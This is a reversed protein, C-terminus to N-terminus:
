SRAIGRVVVTGTFVIITGGILMGIFLSYDFYYGDRVPDYTTCFLKIKAVLNALLPQEPPTRGLVLEILPDVLLPTDFVQGYIQRYVRGEADIVTAQILHDFGNSSPFFQFGLDSSLAEINAASGSLLNWSKDSIGQKNAFYQMAAPTDVGTDFGVVAVEFSDDGLAKRAKEVVKSLHRTTMPCIQYCSTFIMSLVLPKGRFQDLSIASGDASMFEYDGVAQGIASQSLALAQDYDFVQGATEVADSAISASSANVVPLLTMHLTLGCILLILRM